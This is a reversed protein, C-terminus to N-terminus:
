VSIGFLEWEIECVVIESCIELSVTEGVTKWEVTCLVKPVCKPETEFGLIFCAM